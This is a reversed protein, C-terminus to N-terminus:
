DRVNYPGLRSFGSSITPGIMLTGLGEQSYM